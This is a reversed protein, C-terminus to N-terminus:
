SNVWDGKKTVIADANRKIGNNLFAERFEDSAFLGEKEERTSITRTLNFKSEIEVENMEKMFSNLIEQAKLTVKSNSDM